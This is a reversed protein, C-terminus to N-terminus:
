KAGGESKLQAVSVSWDNGDIDRGWFLREGDSESDDDCEAFLDRCLHETDSAVIRVTEDQAISERIAQEIVQQISQGDAKITTM